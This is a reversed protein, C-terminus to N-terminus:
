HQPKPHVSLDPDYTWALNVYGGSPSLPSNCPDVEERVVKIPLTEKKKSFFYDTWTKFFEFDLMSDTTNMINDVPPWRLLNEAGMIKWTEKRMQKADDILVKRTDSTPYDMIFTGKIGIKWNMSYGFHLCDKSGITSAMEHFEETAIYDLVNSWSVSYPKMSQLQQIFERDEAVVARHILEIQVDRGFIWNELREIRELVWKRVAPMIPSPCPCGTESLTFINVASFINEDGAREPAGPPNDFMLTSGCLDDVDSGPVALFEGTIAYHCADWVDENNKLAAVWSGSQGEKV